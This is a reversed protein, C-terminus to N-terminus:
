TVPNTKQSLFKYGKKRLSSALVWRPELGGEIVEADGYQITRWEHDGAKRIWIQLRRSIVPPGGLHVTASQLFPKSNKNLRASGQDVRSILDPVGNDFSEPYNLRLVHAIGAAKIDNIAVTRGEHDSTQSLPLVLDKTHKIYLLISRKRFSM